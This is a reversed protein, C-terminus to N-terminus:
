PRCGSQRSSQAAILVVASRSIGAPPEGVYTGKLTNQVATELEPRAAIRAKVQVVRGADDVLYRLVMRHRGPQLAPHACLTQGLRAQSQSDYDRVAQDPASTPATDIAATHADRTIMASRANAFRASLGTNALLMALAVRPPYRGKIAVSRKGSVIRTEYLLSLQTLAQYRDLAVGLPQAAIDFDIATAANPGDDAAYSPLVHGGADYVPAANGEFPVSTSTGASAHGQQPVVDAWADPAVAGVCSLAILAAAARM